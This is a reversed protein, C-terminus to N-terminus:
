VRETVNLIRARAGVPFNAVAEFDSGQYGFIKGVTKMADFDVVVAGLTPVIKERWVFFYLNDAIKYYHCRDTDALGKESGALCHWTYFHENLYIHEYRETPSYTYVVRAGVMEATPLHRPSEATVPADIVGCCFAASVATLEEGQEIRQALTVKCEAEEPLRALLATAIGAGRDLVLSVTTARETQRVFDVFYIGERVEAAFYSEQAAKGRSTGEVVSWTLTTPSEFGVRVVQDNELHLELDTGALDETPKPANSDPAFAHALDGVPIWRVPDTM